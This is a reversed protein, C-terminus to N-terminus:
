AGRIGLALPISGSESTTSVFFSQFLSALEEPPEIFTDLNTARKFDQQLRGIQSQIHTALNGVLPTASSDLPSALLRAQLTSLLHTYYTRDKVAPVYEFHIRNLFQSLFRKATELTSPLKKRDALGQLNNSEQYIGSNRLWTRTVSFGQPLSGNYNAPCFFEIEISVFQKGKVTEKRVQELRGISFDKYFDLSTNWDTNENFFLNIAKLINSKGVDNQGSIINLSGCRVLSATYVSRFYRIRVRRIIQM